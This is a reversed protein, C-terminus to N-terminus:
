VESFFWIKMAERGSQLMEDLEGQLRRYGPTEKLKLAISEYEEMTDVTFTEIFQNPRHNSELVEIDALGAERMLRKFDKAWRLYTERHGPAIKYEFFGRVRGM